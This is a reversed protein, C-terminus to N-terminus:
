VEDHLEQRSPIEHGHSDKSSDVDDPPQHLTPRIPQDLVIGKGLVDCLKVHGFTDQGDFGNVLEPKNM